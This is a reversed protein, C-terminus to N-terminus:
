KAFRDHRARGRRGNRGSELGDRSQRGGRREDPTTGATGGLNWVSVQGSSTNQWVISNSSAGGLFDGAGVATWDAGPNIAVPAAAGVAAASVQGGGTITNGTMDWISAQGDVNQWLIAATGATNFEGAGVARWDTGPNVADGGASTPGGGVLNTGNMEWISAHGNSTNQWLIDAPVAGAVGFFDGMGVAMWDAGPNSGAAGGGILNTGGLQWLSAQGDGGQFLISDTPVTNSVTTTADTAAPAGTASSVDHRHSRPAAAASRPLNGAVSNDTSSPGSSGGAESASARSGVHLRRGEFRSRVFIGARLHSKYRQSNTGPQIFPLATM